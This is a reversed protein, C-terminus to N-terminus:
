EERLLREVEDRDLLAVGTDRAVALVRRDGEARDRVLEDGFERTAPSPGREQALRGLEVAEQHRVHLISLVRIDQQWRTDTGGEAASRRSACGVLVCAAGLFVVCRSSAHM